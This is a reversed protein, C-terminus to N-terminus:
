EKRPGGGVLVARWHRLFVGALRMTDAIHRFYSPARNYVTPVPVAAFRCCTAAGTVMAPHSNASMGIM